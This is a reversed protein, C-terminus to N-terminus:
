VSSLSTVSYDSNAINMDMMDLRERFDFRLIFNIGNFIQTRNAWITM